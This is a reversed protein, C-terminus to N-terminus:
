FNVENIKEDDDDVHDDQKQILVLFLFFDFGFFYLFNVLISSTNNLAHMISVNHQNTRIIAALGFFLLIVVFFIQGAKVDFYVFLFHM